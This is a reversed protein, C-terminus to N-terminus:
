NPAGEPILTRTFAVVADYTAEDDVESFSEVDDADVDYILVFVDLDEDESELSELTTMLAYDQEEHGVVALLVCEVENGEEDVLIRIDDETLDSNEDITIANSQETTM